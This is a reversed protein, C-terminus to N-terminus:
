PGAGAGGALCGRRVESGKLEKRAEALIAALKKNKEIRAVAEARVELLESDNPELQLGESAAAQAEDWSEGARAERARELLAALRKAREAQETARQRLDKAKASGGDLELVKDAAEIAGEWNGDAFCAESEALFGQIRSQRELNARSQEILRNLEEDDPDLTM